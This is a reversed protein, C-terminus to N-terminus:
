GLKLKKSEKLNWCPKCLKFARYCAQKDKIPQNCNKCIITKDEEM